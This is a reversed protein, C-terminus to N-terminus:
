NRKGTFSYKYTTTKRGEKITIKFFIDIEFDKTISGNFMNGVPNSPMTNQYVYGVGGPAINALATVDLNIDDAKLTVETVYNKEGAKLTMTGPVVEETDTSTNLRTWTGTYVGATEVEPHTVPGRDPLEADERCATLCVCMMVAMFLGKIITKM